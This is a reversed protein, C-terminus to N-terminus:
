VLKLLISNCSQLYELLESLESLESLKRSNRPTAIKCSLNSLCVTRSVFHLVCVKLDLTNRFLQKHMQGATGVLLFIEAKCFLMIESLQRFACQRFQRFGTFNDSNDSILM